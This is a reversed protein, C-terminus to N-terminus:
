QLHLSKAFEKGIRTLDHPDLGKLRSLHGSTIQELAQEPTITTKMM